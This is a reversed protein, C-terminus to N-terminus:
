KDTEKEIRALDKEKIHHDYVEQSINGAEFSCCLDCQDKRPSFMSLNLEEFVLNFTTISTWPKGDKIMCEKYVRYMEQKSAWIPELYLKTTDKRSYHSPLKSLKELWNKCHLKQDSQRGKPSNTEDSPGLNTTSTSPEPDDVEEEDKKGHAKNIWNLAMWENIGLTNLFMKKCM